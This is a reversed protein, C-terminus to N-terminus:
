PDRRSPESLRSSPAPPVAPRPNAALWGELILAAAMSDVRAKRGARSRGSSKLRERAEFSTLREDCLEVPLGLRQSLWAAFGRANHAAAGESGDMNLPLGVVIAEAQWERVLSRLRELDREPSSREINALLTPALGSSSVAAGIRRRGLDLGIVVSM